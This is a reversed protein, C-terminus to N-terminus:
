RSSLLFFFGQSASTATTDVLLASNQEDTPVTDKMANAKEMREHQNDVTAPEASLQHVHFGGVGFGFM